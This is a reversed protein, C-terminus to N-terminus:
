AGEKVSSLQLSIQEWEKMLWAVREEMEKRAQAIERARRSDRYLERIQSPLGPTM